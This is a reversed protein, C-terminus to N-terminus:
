ALGFFLVDLERYLYRFACINHAAVDQPSKELAIDLRDDLLPHIVFFGRGSHTNGSGRVKVSM